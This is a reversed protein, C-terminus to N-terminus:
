PRKTANKRRWTEDAVSTESPNHIADYCAEMVEKYEDRTWKQRILKSPNTTNISPLGREMLLIRPTTIRQYMTNPLTQELLMSKSRAQDGVSPQPGQKDACRGIRCSFRTTRRTTLLLSSNVWLQPDKIEQYWWYNPQKGHSILGM